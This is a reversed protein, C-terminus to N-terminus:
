VLAAARGRQAARGCRTLTAAFAGSGGGGAGAARGRRGSTGRHARAGAGDGTAVRRGGAAPEPPFAGPFFMLLRSRFAVHGCLMFSGSALDVSDQSLDSAAGVSKREIWECGITPSM